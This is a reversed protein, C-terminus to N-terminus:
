EQVVVEVRRNSARGAATADDAYGHVVARAEPHAALHAAADDLSRRGAQSLGARNVPYHVVFRVPGTAPPEPARAAEPVAPACRCLAHGTLWGIPECPAGPCPAALSPQSSALAVLVAGPVAWRAM